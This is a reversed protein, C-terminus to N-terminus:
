INKRKIITTGYAKLCGDANGFLVKEASIDM